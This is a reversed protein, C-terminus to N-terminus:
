YNNGNKFKIINEKLKWIRFCGLRSLKFREELFLKRFKRIEYSYNPMKEYMFEKEDTYSIVNLSKKEFNAFDYVKKFISKPVVYYFQRVLEDEHTHKKKFDAVFDSWSRKIEFETLYGSKNMIILDSEHNLLGYSVNPVALEFDTHNKKYWGIIGLEIEPISLNTNM